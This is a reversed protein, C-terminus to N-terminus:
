LGPGRGGLHHRRRRRAPHRRPAGRGLDPGAALQHRQPLSGLRGRAAERHAGRATSGEAAAIQHIAPVRDAYAKTTSPHSYLPGFQRAFAAHQDRNLGQDRFFVVKYDLIAAKIEDRVADSLPYRLDVGTIEAGITPQLPRVTIAPETIVSM